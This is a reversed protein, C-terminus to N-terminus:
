AANGKRVLQNILDLWARTTVEASYSGDFYEKGRRGLEGREAPNEALERMAGAM